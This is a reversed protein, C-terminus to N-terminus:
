LAETCSFSFGYKSVHDADWGLENSDMRMVCKTNEVVMATVAPIAVKLAPEINVVYSGQPLTDVFMHLQSTAGSGFQFYEGALRPRSTTFKVATSGIPYSNVSTSLTGAVGMPEQGDPDGMLFTNARGRLKLFFAQWAGAQSRKMPPLTVTAQWCAMSYEYVQEHGSFPSRSQAVARKISWTSASFAPTSPMTILAM